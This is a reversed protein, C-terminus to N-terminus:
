DKVNLWALASNKMTSPFLSPSILTLAASLTLSVPQLPFGLHRVYRGAIDGGARCARAEGERM